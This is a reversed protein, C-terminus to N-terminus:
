NSQRNWKKLRKIESKLNELQRTLRRLDDMIDICNDEVKALREAYDDAPHNPPWTVEHDRCLERAYKYGLTLLQHMRESIRDARYEKRLPELQETYAKYVFECLEPYSMQNWGYNYNLWELYKVTLELIYERKIKKM